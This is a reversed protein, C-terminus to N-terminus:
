EKKNFFKFDAEIKIFITFNLVNRIINDEKRFKNKKFIM